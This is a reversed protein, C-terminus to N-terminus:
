VGFHNVTTQWNRAYLKPLEREYFVFTRIELIALLLLISHEESHYMVNAGHLISNRNFEEAPKSGEYLKNVFANFYQADDKISFAMYADWLDTKIKSCFTERLPLGSYDRLLGELQSFLAPVSLTYKGEFHANFADRLIRARKKFYDITAIANELLFLLFKSDIKKYEDLIIDITLTQSKLEKELEMERAISFWGFLYIGNDKCFEKLPRESTSFKNMFNSTCDIEAEHKTNCHPCVYPVKVIREKDKYMGCCYKYKKRSGCTCQQNRGVKEAM